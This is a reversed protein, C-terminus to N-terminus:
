QQRAINSSVQEYIKKILLNRNIPKSVYEDMGAALYKERDGSMAHATVAIIPTYQGLSEEERRIIKTAEIGNMEPMQIDMLIIDFRAKKCLDVARSGNSAIMVRHGQKELLRKALRQNILNDEVLLVNLESLKKILEQGNADASTGNADPASVAHGDAIKCSITFEFSSGEGVNSNVWIDGGMLQVLHKATSLGLGTGGYKRTLSGDAQTFAEFIKHQKATEIGIGTDRICFQLQVQGAPQEGAKAPFVHISVTGDNTFKIANSLLNRCVHVISSPDGILLDPTQHDISADISLGKDTIAQQYREAIDKVLARISFNEFRLRRKGQENESFELIENIIDMLDTASTAVLDLYESKEQSDKAEQAMSTMGIIGNMPTRIEHSMNTLFESKIRSAELAEDRAEKLEENLDALLHNQEALDQTRAAVESELIANQRQMSRVRLRHIAIIITAITFLAVFRFWWTQWFAPEIIFHLAYESENWVGDNNAAKIRFTYEGPDLNTYGANRRNGSEVWNQDFGELLYAYQNKESHMYNLASFEFLIFNEDNKLRLKEGADIATRFRGLSPQGLIEIDTLVIPALYSNDIISDPHFINFGQIGGFALEGSSLKLYAGTNFESSQLGDTEDYNQFLGSVPHYKAIGNNTSIWLFSDDDELIGYVVNDPLGDDELLTTFFATGDVAEHMRSLGHDTGVWLINRSDRFIGRVRGHGLSLSDNGDHRFASFTETNLDLRNLGGGATGIWLLDQQPDEYITFILNTSLSTSDEENHRYHTFSPDKGDALNIRSLGGGQTGIWLENKTRAPNLITSVINSTVTKTSQPSQLNFLFRRNIGTEPNLRNLGGGNSGIWLSNDDAVTVARLTNSSISNPDAPNNQFHKFIGTNRDFRNLGGRATAIWLNNDADEALGFVLGNSLSQPETPDPSYTYFKKPEPQLMDVGAGGTGVWLLGSEDTFLATVGNQSLAAPNSPNDTFRLTELTAVDMRVLGGNTGIWLYGQADRSLAAMASVGNGLNNFYRDIDFLNELEDRRALRSLGNLTSVWIDGCGDAMIDTVLPHSLTHPDQPDNRFVQWNGAGDRLLLGNNTGVWLNGGPEAALSVITPAGIADPAANAYPLITEFTATDGYEAHLRSLGNNTGVWIAGHQDEALSTIYNNILTSPNQKNATYTDFGDTHEDYKCLGGGRTGVWLEGNSDSMIATIFNDSISRPKRPDHQYVKFRYGDFRNLGDQTGIWIYGSKDQAIAFVTVQSLGQQISLNKFRYPNLGAQATLEVSISLLLFLGLRIPYRRSISKIYHNSNTFM